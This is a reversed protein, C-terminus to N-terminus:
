IIANKDFGGLYKTASHIAIDIGLQLPKQNYPSAFTSDVATILKFRKGLSGFAELDLLSVLRITMGIKM